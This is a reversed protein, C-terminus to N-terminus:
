IIRVKTAIDIFFFCLIKLNSVNKLEEHIKELIMIWNRWNGRSLVSLLTAALRAPVPPFADTHAKSQLHSAVHM